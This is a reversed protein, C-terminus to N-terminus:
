FGAALHHTEGYRLMVTLLIVTAFGLVAVIALLIALYGNRRRLRSSGRAQLEAATTPLENAPPSDDDSRHRAINQM